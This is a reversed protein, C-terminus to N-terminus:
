QMIERWDRYQYETSSKVEANTDKDAENSNAKMAVPNQESLAEDSRSRVVFNRQYLSKVDNASMQSKIEDLRKQDRYSECRMNDDEKQRQKAEELAQEEAAM